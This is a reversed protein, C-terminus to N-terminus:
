RFILTAMISGAWLQNSIQNFPLWPLGFPTQTLASKAPSSMKVGALVGFALSNWCRHGGVLKKEGFINVIFTLIAMTGAKLSKSPENLSEFPQLSWVSLLRPVVTGITFIALTNGENWNRLLPACTGTLMSFQINFQMNVCINIPFRAWIRQLDILENM